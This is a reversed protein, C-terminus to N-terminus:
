RVDDQTALQNGKAEIWAHELAQEATMRASPSPSMVKTIFDCCLESADHDRLNRLPFPSGRVVYGHLERGDQFLLGGTIMQSTLQGLSWMDVAFTYFHEEGDDSDDDSPTYIGRIEPAMYALTGVTTRFATQEHLRKSIGFDSLKVWWTPSKQFVLINLESFPKSLHDSLNGYNAFEMAIFIADPTEWWGYSRTFWTLYRDHSFKFITELEDTFQRLTSVMGREKAIEKVARQGKIKGPPTNTCSELWVVGFSGFGLRKERKWSQEVLVPRPQELTSSYITHVVEGGRDTTTLRADRVLDSSQSDDFLQSKVKEAM